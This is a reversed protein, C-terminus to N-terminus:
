WLNINFFNPHGSLSFEGIDFNSIFALFSSLFLSNIYIKILIYNFLKIPINWSFLYPVHSLLLLLKLSKNWQIKAYAVLIIIIDNYWCCCVSYLCAYPFPGPILYFFFIYYLVIVCFVFITFLFILYNDFNHLLM